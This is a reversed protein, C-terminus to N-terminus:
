KKKIRCSQDEGLGKIVDFTADLVKSINEQTVTGGMAENVAKIVDQKAM